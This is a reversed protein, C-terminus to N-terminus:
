AKKHLKEMDARLIELQHPKDVDMGPEAQEWIIPRGSIGIRKAVTAVLDDLVIQRTAV